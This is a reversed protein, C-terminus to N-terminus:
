PQIAKPKGAIFEKLYYPEFYATDEFQQQKYLERAIDGMYRASPKIDNLYIGRDNTIMEQCKAAGDGFYYFREKIEAFAHSEVIKAEIASIQRLQTNFTSTFIEMRRADIMPILMASDLTLNQESSTLWDLAAAALIQLSNTSIIPIDLAYAMGKAASVGIRLGTYSGPGKGVAIFDLDKALVNAKLICENISLHLKEAHTYNEDLVDAYSLCSNEDFVAVSCLHTSTDIALFKM